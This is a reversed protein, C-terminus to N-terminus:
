MDMIKPRKRKRKNSHIPQNIRSKTESFPVAMNYGNPYHPVNRCCIIYVESYPDIEVVVGKWQQAASGTGEIATVSQGIVFEYTPNVEKEAEEATADVTLDVYM